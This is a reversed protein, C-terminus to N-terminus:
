KDIGKMIMLMAVADSIKQNEGLFYYEYVWDEGYSGKKPNPTAVEIMRGNLGLVLGLRIVPTGNSSVSPPRSSGTYGDTYSQVFRRVAMKLKYFM